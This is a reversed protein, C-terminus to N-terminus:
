EAELLKAATGYIVGPPGACIVQEPGYTRAVWEVYSRAREISGNFYTQALQKM